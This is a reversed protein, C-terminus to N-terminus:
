QQSEKFDQKKVLEKFIEFAAVMSRYARIIEPTKQGKDWLVFMAREIEHWANYGTAAM